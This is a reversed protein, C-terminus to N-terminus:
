WAGPWRARELTSRHRSFRWSRTENSTLLSHERQQAEQSRWPERAIRQARTGTGGTTSDPASIPKRIVQRRPSVGIPSSTTRTSPAQCFTSNAQPNLSAVFHSPRKAGEDKSEARSSGSCRRLTTPSAAARSTPTPGGPGGAVRANRARTLVSHLIAAAQHKSRSVCSCRNQRSTAHVQIRNGDRCRSGHM